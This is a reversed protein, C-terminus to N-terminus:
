TRETITKKGPQCSLCFFLNFLHTICIANNSSILHYVGTCSFKCRRCWIVIRYKATLIFHHFCFVTFFYQYKTGTWDTDTLTDFKVEARYMTGPCKCLFIILGDNDVVIRLCDAGVKVNRILQIEFRQCRFIHFINYVNFFRISRYYLETSLSRNLQCLTEHLHPYRNQSGRCLIYIRCFVSFQKILNQFFALNWSWLSMCYKGCFFCLFCGIFQSIRHQYSRRIYQAALTHLNRNVIFVYIFEDSNNVTNCLIMRNQHIFVQHSFLDFYIRYTISSVNQNWTDHLMDLSRTDMGSVTDRYIRCLANACAHLFGNLFIGPSKGLRQM